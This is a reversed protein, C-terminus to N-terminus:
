WRIELRIWEYSQFRLPVSNATPSVDDLPEGALTMRRAASLNRACHFRTQTPQGMTEILDFILGRDNGVLPMAHVMAINPAEIHFLWAAKGGAPQGSVAFCPDLGQCIAESMSMLQTAPIGIGIACRFRRQSEGDPILLTDLMRPGTLRHIPLGLPFLTWGGSPRSLDIFDTALIWEQDTSQCMGNLSRYIDHDCEPWAFRLAYYSEHCSPIPLQHPTLEIEILVYRCARYLRTSQRFEALVTGNRNLLQGQATIEGCAGNAATVDVSNAAMVSYEVVKSNAQRFAIQQAVRPRRDGYSGMGRIAGTARDFQIHVLENQLRLEEALHAPPPPPPRNELWAFGYAPVNALYGSPVPGWPSIGKPGFPDFVPLTQARGSPNVVLFGQDLAPTDQHAPLVVQRLLGAMSETDEVIQGPAEGSDNVLTEPDSHWPTSGGAAVVMAALKNQRKKRAHDEWAWISASIANQRSVLRSYAYPDTDPKPQTVIDTGASTEFFSDLTIFTGLASTFQTALRLDEYWPSMAGPWSAFLLTAVYDRDMAKSADHGFNILAKAAAADTPVRWLADIRVNACGTWHTKSQRAHPLKRGDFTAVLAGKFGFSALIQPLIPLVHFHRSAYIRPTHGLIREVVARGHALNEVCANPAALEWDMEEYEGGILSATGRHLANRLADISAPETRAMKEITKGTALVNTPTPENLRDRFSPGGLNSDVLIVDILYSTTPYIYDRAASLIDYARYLHARASDADGSVATTAADRVCEQFQITDLNNAYQTHRTLVEVMWYSYGLAFFERILDTEITPRPNLPRQVPDKRPEIPDFGSTRPDCARPATGQKDGQDIESVAMTTGSTTLGPIAEPISWPRPMFHRVIVAQRSDADIREQWGAPIRNQSPAPLLILTDPLYEPPADAPRWTPLRGIRALLEPHWALTWAGLVEAAEQGNLDVPFDDLSSYPM